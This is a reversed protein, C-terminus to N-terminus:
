NTAEIYERTVTECCPSIFYEGGPSRSRGASWQLTLSLVGRSGPSLRSRWLGLPESSMALQFGSAIHISEDLLTSSPNDASSCASLYAIQSNKLNMNSIAAATLKGSETPNDGVLLLHSDSPRKSNSLGHCAFHIALYTPLEHLVQTVSPSDLQSVSSRHHVVNKIERAEIVANVLPGWKTVPSGPTDPTTAMTVTLLQSDANNIDLKKQRTYSLAKITPIYSSIARSLTNCTSHQSHDGAAHFPAQALIGVGIWWVRPLSADDVAIFGLDEFVPLM